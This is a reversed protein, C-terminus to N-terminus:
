WPRGREGGAATEPRVRYWYGYVSEFGLKAYAALAPQNDALVSLWGYEAGREKARQLLFASLATAIGMGRQEEVTHVDFLGALGDCVTLLGCAVLDTGSHALVGESHLGTGSLRRLEAERRQITMGRVKGAPEVWQEFPVAELGLGAPLTELRLGAPALGRPGTLPGAQVVSPEFVVYGREALAEDLEPPQSFGTLRFVPSVGADAFLRQCHDIKEALPLTSGHTANVSSARKVDDRARRVLWGDYDLEERPATSRLLVEELRSASPQASVM